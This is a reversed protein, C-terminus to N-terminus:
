PQPYGTGLAFRASALSGSRTFPPIDPDPNGGEAQVNLLDIEGRFLQLLSWRALIHRIYLDSKRTHLRVDALEMGSLLTGGRVHLTLMRQMGLGRELLWRSGTESGLVGLVPLMLLVALLSCWLLVRGSRRLLRVVM